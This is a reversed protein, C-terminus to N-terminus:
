WFNNQGKVTWVFQKLSRLIKAFEGDSSCNKRVTPWFLKPLLIGNRDASCGFSLAVKVVSWFSDINKKVLIILLALSFQWITNKRFLDISKDNKIAIINSTVVTIQLVKNKLIHGIKTLETSLIKLLYHIFFDIGMKSWNDFNYKQKSICGSIWIKFNM